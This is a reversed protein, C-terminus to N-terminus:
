CLSFFGVCSVEFICVSHFGGSYIALANINICSDNSLMLVFPFIEPDFKCIIYILRNLKLSPCLSGCLIYIPIHAARMGRQQWM